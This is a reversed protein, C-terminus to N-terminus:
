DWGSRDVSPAVVLELTYEMDKTKINQSMKLLYDTKLYLKVGGKIIHSLEPLMSVFLADVAPAVDFQANLQSSGKIGKEKLSGVKATMFPEGTVKKFYVGTLDFEEADGVIDRIEAMDITTIATIRGKDDAKESFDWRAFDVFASPPVESQVVEFSKKTTKVTVSGETFIVTVNDNNLRNIADYVRHASFSLEGSFDPPTTGKPLLVKFYRGLIRTVDMASSWMEGKEIKVTVPSFFSKKKDIRMSLYKLVELWWDQPAVITVSVM